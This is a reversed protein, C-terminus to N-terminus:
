KGSNASITWLFISRYDVERTQEPKWDGMDFVHSVIRTGPKLEKFLKPQLKLNLSPLLFLTV